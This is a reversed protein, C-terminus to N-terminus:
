RNLLALAIQLTSYAGPALAAEDVDFRPNHAVEGCGMAANAIGVMGYMGKGGCKRIYNVYGDSGTQVEMRGMYEEGMTRRVTERALAALEPDNELPYSLYEFTHKAECRHARAVLDVIEKMRGYMEEGRARNFFRMTGGFSVEDPIINRQTGGEIHGITLSYPEVPGRERSVLLSLQSIIDCTCLIPDIGEHPRAGHTGKGVITYEFAGVAAMIPGDVVCVKGAEMTPWVHVAYCCDVGYKEFLTSTYYCISNKENKVFM